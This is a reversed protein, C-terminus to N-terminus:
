SQDDDDGFVIHDVSLKGPGIIGFLLYSILYPMPASAVTKFPAEFIMGLEARHVKYSLLAVLMVGAIMLASARTLLGAMLLLGGAAEALGVIVAHFGPAPLGIIEGFFYETSKLDTLKGYGNRFMAYGVVLRILLLLYPGSREFITASIGNVKSVLQKIMDM